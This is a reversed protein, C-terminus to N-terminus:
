TVPLARRNTHGYGTVYRLMKEILLRGIFGTGGTILVCKDRYFEMVPTSTIKREETMTLENNHATEESVRMDM